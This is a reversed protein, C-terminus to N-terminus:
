RLDELIAKRLRPLHCLGSPFHLRKIPIGHILREATEFQRASVEPNPIVPIYINRLVELLAEKGRLEEARLKGKRSRHLFYLGRLPVSRRSFQWPSDSHLILRRKRTERYLPEGSDNRGGLARLAAPWLRIEPTGPQVIFSDGHEQIVATDDSLLSFGGGLLSATLTSKGQGIPGCLCVGQNKWAVVNAHLLISSSHSLLVGLVKGRLLVRALEPSSKESPNWEIRREDIQVRFQGGQPSDVM